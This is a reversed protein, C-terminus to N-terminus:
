GDACSFGAACDLVKVFLAGSCAGDRNQTRVRRQFDALSGHPLSSYPTVVFNDSAHEIVVPSSHYNSHNADGACV